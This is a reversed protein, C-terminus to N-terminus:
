AWSRSGSWASRAAACWAGRPTWSRSRRPLGPRRDDSAGALGALLDSGPLVIGPLVNRLPCARGPFVMIDRPIPPPPSREQAAAAGSSSGRTPFSAGGEAPPRRRTCRWCRGAVGVRVGVSGRCCARRVAGLAPARARGQDGDGEPTFRVEVETPPNEARVRWEIVLRDFPEWVMVSGWEAPEGGRITELIRGGVRPEIM